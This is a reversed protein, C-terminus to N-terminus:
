RLPAMLPALGLPGVQEPIALKPIEGVIVALADELHRHRQLLGGVLEEGTPLRESVQLDIEQELIGTEIHAASGGFQALRTGVRHM